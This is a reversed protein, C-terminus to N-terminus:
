TTRVSYRVRVNQGDPGLGSVDSLNLKAWAAAGSADRRSEIGIAIGQKVLRTLVVLVVVSLRFVKACATADREAQGHRNRVRHSSGRM